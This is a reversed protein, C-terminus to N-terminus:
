FLDPQLSQSRYHCVFSPKREEKEFDQARQHIRTTWLHLVSASVGSVHRCHSPVEGINMQKQLSPSCVLPRACALCIHQCLGLGQVETYIATSFLASFNRSVKLVLKGCGGWSIYKLDKGLLLLVAVKKNASSDPLSHLADSTQNSALSKERQEQKRGTESAQPTCFVWKKLSVILRKMKYTPFDFYLLELSWIRLLPSMARSLSNHEKGTKGCVLTQPSPRSTLKSNFFTQPKVLSM